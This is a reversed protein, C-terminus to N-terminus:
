RGLTLLLFVLVLHSIHKFNVLFIGSRYWIDYIIYPVLYWIDKVRLAIVKEKNVRKQRFREWMECVSYKGSEKEKVFLCMPICKLDNLSQTKWHFILKLGSALLYAWFTIKERSIWFGALGRSIKLLLM